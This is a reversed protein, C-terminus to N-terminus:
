WGLWSLIRGIFSSGSASGLTNSVAGGPLHSVSQGMLSSIENASLARNYLRVDDILGNFNSNPNSPSDRGIEVPYVHNALAGVPLVFTEQAVGDIYFTLSTGSRTVAIHHWGLGITTNSSKSIEGVSGGNAFFTAKDAQSIYLDYDWGPPDKKAVIGGYDGLMTRNVWASITFDGIIGFSTSNPISVFDNVGDFSLAQGSKGAVWTPGNQLTGTNNNGSSDSTTLGSGENLSWQGVLGATSLPPPVPPTVTIVPGRDILDWLNNSYTGAYHQVEYVGTTTAQITKQGSSQNITFWLWGYKDDGVHWQSGQPVLSMWHDPKVV